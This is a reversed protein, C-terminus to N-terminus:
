KGMQVYPINKFSTFTFPSKITIAENDSIKLLVSDPFETKNVLISKGDEYVFKWDTQFASDQYSVRGY